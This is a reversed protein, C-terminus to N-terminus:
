SREPAPKLVMRRLDKRLVDFLQLQFGDLTLAVDKGTSRRYQDFQAFASWAYWMGLLFGPLCLVLSSLKRMRYLRRFIGPNM